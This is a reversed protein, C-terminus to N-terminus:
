MVIICVLTNHFNTKRRRLSDPCDDVHYYYVVVGISSTVESTLSPATIYSAIHTFIIAQIDYLLTLVFVLYKCLM